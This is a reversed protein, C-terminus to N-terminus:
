SCIGILEDQCATVYNADRRYIEAHGAAIHAAYAMNGGDAQTQMFDILAQLRPAVLNIASIRQTSTAGYADLFLRTRVGQWGVDGDAVLPVFRYIAYAIDWARPGPAATDFDIFGMVEGDRVICNYPAIDNHCIVEIPQVSPLQWGPLNIAACDVTADHYKHLLVAVDTLIQDDVVDPTAGDIFSVIERGDDDAGLFRPAGAFNRGAVHALLM